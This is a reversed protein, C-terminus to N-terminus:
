AAPSRKSLPTWPSNLFSGPLISIQVFDLSFISDQPPQHVICGKKARHFHLTHFDVSILYTRLILNLYQLAEFYAPSYTFQQWKWVNCCTKLYKHVINLMIHGCM